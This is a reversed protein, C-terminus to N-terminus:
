RRRGPATFEFGDAAPVAILDACARPQFRAIFEDEQAAWRDWHPRYTDGDRELARRKREADDADVWIGLDACARAAPTLAGIGEVILRQGPEVRHWGSPAATTWDWQRWRGTHGAARPELLSRQLHDAAWLLGDWGPYIDDLRVVVSGAWIDHLEAALTSKGSGSRGDILVTTAAADLRRLIDDLAM